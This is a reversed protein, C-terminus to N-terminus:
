KYYIWNNTTGDVEVKNATISRQYIDLGRLYIILFWQSLCNELALASVWYSGISNLTLFITRDKLKHSMKEGFIWAKVAINTVDKQIIDDVQM